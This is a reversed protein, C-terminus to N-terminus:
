QAHRRRGDGRRRFLFYAAAFFILGAVALVLAFYSSALAVQLWRAAPPTLDVTRLWDAEPEYAAGALAPVALPTFAGTFSLFGNFLALGALATRADPARAVWAAVLGLTAAIGAALLPIVLPSGGIIRLGGLAVLAPSVLGTMMLSSRKETMAGAM